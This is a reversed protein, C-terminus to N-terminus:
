RHFRAARPAPTAFAEAVRRCHGAILDVLGDLAPHWADERRCAEATAAALDPLREALDLLRAVEAEPDRGCRAAMKGWDRRGVEAFRYRDGVKMAMKVDEWRKAYPLISAVDYAPALRPGRREPGLMLTFNKAHADSGGLLFNAAFLDMFTTRDAEADASRALVDMIAMVGPGGENQYKRAPHVGLAQCFDEQHLRSMSAQGRGRDFREVVLATEHEFRLIEAKAAPLGAAALLKLCFHENEVLGPLRDHPTKFIHTTPVAGSPVGWDGDLFAFATKAQAGALAFRGRDGALRQAAPDRRLAALRRAIEGDGMRVFTGTALRGLGEETAFQVAGACDEGLLMLMAFPNRHSVFADSAARRLVAEDDSLLGSLYHFTQRHPQDGAGSAFRPMSLSLPVTNRWQHLDQVFSLRSGDIGAREVHGVPAGDILVHLRDPLPHRAM